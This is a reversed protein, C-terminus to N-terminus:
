VVILNSIVIKTIFWLPYNTKILLKAFLFSKRLLQPLILSISKFKFCRSHPNDMISLEKEVNWVFDSLFSLFICENLHMKILCQQLVFRFFSFHYFIYFSLHDLIILHSLLTHVQFFTEFIVIRGQIEVLIKRKQKEQHRWGIAYQLLM